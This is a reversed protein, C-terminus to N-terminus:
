SKGSCSGGQSNTAALWIWSKKADNARTPRNTGSGKQRIAATVAGIIAGACWFSSCTWFINAKVWNKDLRRRFYRFNLRYTHGDLIYLFKRSFSHNKTSIRGRTYLVGSARPMLRNQWEPCTRTWYGDSNGWVKKINQVPVGTPQAEAVESSSRVLISRFRVCKSSRTWESTCTCNYYM